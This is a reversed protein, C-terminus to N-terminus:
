DHQIREIIAEDYDFLDLDSSSGLAIDDIEEPENTVEKWLALWEGWSYRSVVSSTEPNICVGELDGNEWENDAEIVVVEDADIPRELHMLESPLSVVHLGDALEGTEYTSSTESYHGKIDLGAPQIRFYLM